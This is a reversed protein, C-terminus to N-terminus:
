GKEGKGMEGHLEKVRHEIMFKADPALRHEPWNNVFEQYFEMAKEYEGLQSYSVGSLFYAEPRRACTASGSIVQQWVALAKRFCKESKTGVGKSKYLFAQGYYEEGIQFLGKALNQNDNYDAILKAVAADAKDLEGLKISQLAVGVQLELMTKDGQQWNKLLWGFLERGTDYAGVNRYEEVIEHMGAPLEKDMSYKDLLEWLEAEAAEFDMAKVRSMVMGTRAWVGRESGPWHELIYKFKEYAKHTSGFQLYEQAVNEVAAAIGKDEGFKSILKEFYATSNPEDGISIYMKVINAQSEIARSSQPWTDAVCEFLEAAKDYKRTDRYLDGMHDVAARTDQRQFDWLLKNTTVRERKDDIEVLYRCFDGLHLVVARADAVSIGGAQLKGMAAEVASNSDLGAGALVSAMKSWVAIASAPWKQEVYEFYEIAKEYKGIQGFCRGISYVAETIGSHQGYESVMQEFATKGNPEDGLFINAQVVGRQAELGVENNSPWRKRVEQYVDLAESYKKKNRFTDAVQIAAAPLGEFGEFGELMKRYATVAQGQRNTLIYFRTLEKQAALGDETGPNAEIIQKYIAEAREYQDDRRLQEAQKLLAATDATQGFCAGGATLCFVVGFLFLLQLPVKRVM